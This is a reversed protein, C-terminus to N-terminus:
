VVCAVAICRMMYSTMYLPMHLIKYIPFPRAGFTRLPPVMPASSTPAPPITERQIFIAHEPASQLVTKLTLIGALFLRLTLKKCEGPHGAVIQLSWARQPTNHDATPVM